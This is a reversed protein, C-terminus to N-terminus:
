PKDEEKRGPERLLAIALVAVWLVYGYLNIRETTGVWPTPQNAEIRSANLWTFVGSLLLMGITGVSYLCFRKGFAAAGFGIAALTLISAVAANVVHMTDTFTFESGRMHMPFFTWVFGNIAIGLLLGATVRLARNQGASALVGIGFSFFLVAYASLLRDVLPKTPAGIATLESIAQSSFSYGEYRMGAVIDTGVYLLSSLIGCLLLFRRAM